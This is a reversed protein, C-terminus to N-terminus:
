RRTFVDENELLEAVRDGTLNVTAPRDTHVLPVQIRNLNPSQAAGQPSFCSVIVSTGEPLSAGGELVVVGGQIRGPIDMGSNDDRSENWALCVSGGIRTM